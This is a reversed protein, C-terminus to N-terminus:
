KGSGEKGQEEGMARSIGAPSKKARKTLLLNIM